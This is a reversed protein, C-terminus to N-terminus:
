APTVLAANGSGGLGLLGAVDDRQQMFRRFAEAMVTIASGRDATFVADAGDPHCAAVSAADIDCAGDHPRTSLDVLVATVGCDTICRRAYALERGKTDCTGAVYVRREAAIRQGMM